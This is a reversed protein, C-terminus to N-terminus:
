RECGRGDGEADDACQDGLHGQVVEDAHGGVAILVQPMAIGDGGRIEREGGEQGGEHDGRVAVGREDAVGEVAEGEIAGVAGGALGVAGAILEAADGLAQGPGVAGLKGGALGARGDVGLEGQAGESFVVLVDGAAAIEVLGVGAPGDGGFIRL